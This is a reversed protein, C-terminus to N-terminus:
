DFETSFDEKDGKSIEKLHAYFCSSDRIFPLDM